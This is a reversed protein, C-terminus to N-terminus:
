ALMVIVITQVITAMVSFAVDSILVNAKTTPALQAYAGVLHLITSLLLFLIAVYHFYNVANGSGNFMFFPAVVCAFTFMYRFTVISVTRTSKMITDPSAYENSLMALIFQIVIFLIIAVLVLGNKSSQQQYDFDM